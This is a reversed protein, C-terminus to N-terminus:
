YLYFDLTFIFIFIFSFFFTFSFKSFTVQEALSCIDNKTRTVRIIHVLLVSGISHFESSGPHGKSCINVGFGGGVDISAKAEM